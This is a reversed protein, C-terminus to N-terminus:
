LKGMLKNSDRIWDTLDQKAKLVINKESFNLGAGRGEKRSGGIQKGM